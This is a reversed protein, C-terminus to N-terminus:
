PRAQRLVSGNRPLPDPRRAAMFEAVVTVLAKKDYDPLRFYPAIVESLGPRTYTMPQDRRHLPEIVCVDEPKTDLYAMDTAVTFWQQAKSIKGHSRAVAQEKICRSVHSSAAIQIVKDVGHETFIEAAAEIEDATNEVERTVIIDEIVERFAARETDSLRDLLSALRPFERLRELNDLLYKKSYKGESLGDRRSRGCGIILCAPEEGPGLTLIARALAAHDGLKDEEPVGFVLEEWGDTELHRSHVLAGVKAM